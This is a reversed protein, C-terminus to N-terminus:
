EGERGRRKRRRRTAGRQTGGRGGKRGSGASPGSSPGVAPAGGARGMLWPRVVPRRGMAFGRKRGSGKEEEGKALSAGRADGRVGGRGRGRGRRRVRLPPREGVWLFRKVPLTCPAEHSAWPAMGSPRSDQYVLQTGMAEESPVGSGGEPAQSAELAVAATCGRDLFVPLASASPEEGIDAGSTPVPTVPTEGIISNNPAPPTSRLLPLTEPERQQVGGSVFSSFRLGLRSSSMVFGGSASASVSTSTNTSLAASSLFTAHQFGLGQHGGGLGLNPHGLGGFNGTLETLEDMLADGEGEEEEAGAGGV